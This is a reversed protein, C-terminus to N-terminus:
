TTIPSSEISQDQSPANVKSGNAKTGISFLQFDETLSQLLVNCGLNNFDDELYFDNTDYEERVSVSEPNIAVWLEDTALSEELHNSVKEEQLNFEKILDETVDSEDIWANESAPYGLWKILYETKHGNKRKKLIQDVEFVFPDDKYIPPPKKSQNRRNKKSKSKDM